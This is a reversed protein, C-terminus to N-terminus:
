RGKFFESGNENRFLVIQRISSEGSTQEVSM